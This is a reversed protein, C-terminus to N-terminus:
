SIPVPAQAKNGIYPLYCPMADSLFVFCLMSIYTIYQINRFFVIYKYQVKLLLIELSDSRWKV